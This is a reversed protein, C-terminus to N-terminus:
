FQDVMDPMLLKMIALMVRSLDQRELGGDGEFNQRYRITGLPRRLRWLLDTPHLVGTKEDKMVM